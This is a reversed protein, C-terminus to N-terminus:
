GTDQRTKRCAGARRLTREGITEAYRDDGADIVLFWDQVSYFHELFKGAEDDVRSPEISSTAADKGVDGVANGPFANEVM